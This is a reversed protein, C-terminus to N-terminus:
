RSLGPSNKAVQSEEFQMQSLTVADDQHISLPLHPTGHSGDCVESEKALWAVIAGAIQSVQNAIEGINHAVAADFADQPEAATDHQAPELHALERLRSPVRSRLVASAHKREAQFLSVVCLRMSENVLNAMKYLTSCPQVATQKYARISEHAIEAASTYSRYFATAIRTSVSALRLESPGTLTASAIERSLDNLTRYHEELACEATQVYGSFDLNRMGYGKVSYDLARQSLRSIALLQVRLIHIQQQSNM